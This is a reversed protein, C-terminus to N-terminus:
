APTVTGSRAIAPGRRGGRLTRAKDMRSDEHRLAIPEVHGACHDFQYDLDMAASILALHIFAQPSNGIQVGPPRIEESYLGVHNSYTPM